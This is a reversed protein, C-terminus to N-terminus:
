STPSPLSVIFKPSTWDDKENFIQELTQSHPYAETSMDVKHDYPLIEVRDLADGCVNLVEEWLYFGIAAYRSSATIVKCDQGGNHSIRYFRVIGNGMTNLDTKM